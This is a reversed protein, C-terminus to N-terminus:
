EPGAKFSQKPEVKELTPLGSTGPLSLLIKTVSQSKGMFDSVSCSSSQELKEILTTSISLQDSPSVTKRVVNLVNLTQSNQVVSSSVSLSGSSMKVYNDGYRIAVDCFQFLSKSIKASTKRDSYGMEVCQQCRRFVSNSVDIKRDVGSIALGEHQCSDLITNQITLQGGKKKVSSPTGTDICDDATFAIVSNLVSHDGGSLYLGDNDNDQYAAGEKTQINLVASNVMKFLCRKCEGGQYLNQLLCNEIVVDSGVAAGFGPGKCSVIASHSLLLKSDQLLTIAPIEKFHTGTSKDRKYPTGGTGSIVSYKTTLSGGSQILIGGWPSSEDFGSIFVSRGVDGSLVLKGFITIVVSPDIFITTGSPITLVESKEVTISETLHYLGSQITGRSTPFKRLKAEPVRGADSETVFGKGYPLNNHKYTTDRKDWVGDSISTIILPYSRSTSDILYPHLFQLEHGSGLEFREAGYFPTLRREFPAVAWEAAGREKDRIVIISECKEDCFLGSETGSHEITQRRTFSYLSRNSMVKPKDVSVSKKCDSASQKKDESSDDRRLHLRNLLLQHRSSFSERLKAAGSKFNPIPKGEYSITPMEKSLSMLTTLDLLTSDVAKSWRSSTYQQLVCKLSEKYQSLLSPEKIIKKDLDSEACFFLEHSLAFKGEKHCPQFVNDFDWAHILLPSQKQSAMSIFFVEDDYDGNELLSNMSLWFLYQPLHVVESPPRKKQELSRYKSSLEGGSKFSPFQIIDYYAPKPHYKWVRVGVEVDEEAAVSVQSMCSGSALSSHLTRTIADKPFEILLYVGFSKRNGCTTDDGTCYVEVLRSYPSWIGSEELFKATSAYGLRYDDEWLSMLLFKSMEVEGLTVPKDLTIVMSRRKTLRLKASSKGWFTIHGPIQVESSESKDGTTHSTTTVTGREGRFIAGKEGTFSRWATGMESTFQLGITIYGEKTSPTPNPPPPTRTSVDNKTVEVHQRPLSTQLVERDRDKIEALQMTGFVM